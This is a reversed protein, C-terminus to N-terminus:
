NEDSNKNEPKPLYRYSNGKIDIQIIVGSNSAFTAINKFLQSNLDYDSNGPIVIILKRTKIDSSNIKSITLGTERESGSFNALHNIEQELKLRVKDPSNYSPATLDLSKVATVEGAQYRCITPYNFPLNAQYRERFYRGRVFNHESWINDAIKDHEDNSDNNM